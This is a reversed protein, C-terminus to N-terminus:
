RYLQSSEAAYATNLLFISLLSKSAETVELEQGSLVGVFMGIISSRTALVHLVLSHQNRRSPVLVARNQNLVWAFTGEEVLADIEERIRGQECDPECAAIVFDHDATDVMMFAMSEFSMLRRLHAWTAGLIKGVEQDYNISGQFDGLSVVMDLSDLIWRNVEELYKVRTELLDVRNPTKLVEAM